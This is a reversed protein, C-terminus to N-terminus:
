CSLLTPVRVREQWFPQHVYQSGSVRLTFTMPVSLLSELGIAHCASCCTTLASTTCQTTHRKSPPALLLRCSHLTSHPHQGACHQHHLTHNPHISPTITLVTHDDVREGTMCADSHARHPIHMSSHSSPLSRWHRAGQPQHPHTASATAEMVRGDM